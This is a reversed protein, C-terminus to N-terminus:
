ACGAANWDDLADNAKGSACEVYPTVEEGATAM